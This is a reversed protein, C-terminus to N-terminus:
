NEDVNLGSQVGWMIFNLDKLKPCNTEYKGKKKILFIFFLILHSFCIIYIQCVHLLLLFFVFFGKCMAFFFSGHSSIGASLHILSPSDLSESDSISKLGLGMLQSRMNNM